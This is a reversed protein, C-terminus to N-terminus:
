KLQDIMNKLATKSTYGAKIITSITSGAGKNYYAKTSRWTGTDFSDDDNGGVYGVCQAKGSYLDGIHYWVNGGEDKTFVAAYVTEIYELHGYGSEKIQKATMYLTMECGPYVTQAASPVTYSSGNKSNGDINEMKVILTVNLEEGDANLNLINDFLDNLEESDIHASGAVNGIYSVHWDAGDYKAQMGNYLDVYENSTNLIIRFKELVDLILLEENTEPIDEVPTTFKFNLVSNLSEGSPDVEASDTYNFKVYFDLYGNPEVITKKALPITCEPDAYVGYVIDGNSYTVDDIGSQRLTANYGYVLDSNNKVTIKVVESDGADGTLNATSNLVTSIYGNTDVSSNGMPQVDCIFVGKQEQVTLEGGVQLEDAIQAFGVSSFAACLSLAVSLIATLKSGKKM